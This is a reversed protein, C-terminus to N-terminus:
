GIVIVAAFPTLGFAVWFKVRVTFEFGVGGTMVVAPDVVNAAPWAPLNVTAAAPEGAGAIEAVLLGASGDPTISPTHTVTGPPDRIGTVRDPAATQALAM